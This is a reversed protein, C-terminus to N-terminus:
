GLPAFLDVINGDPDIVQAYRQGWFADWPEKHSAYGAEIIEAYKADVGAPDDCLFALGIRQGVPQVWDPEMSLIMSLDNISVRMGGRTEVEIYPGEEGTPFDLGLLRYFAATAKMDSAVLGIMDIVPTM